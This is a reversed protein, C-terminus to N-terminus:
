APIEDSVFDEPGKSIFNELDSLQEKSLATISDKGYRQSVLDKANSLANRNSESEKAKKTDYGFHALTKKWVYMFDSNEGSNKNDNSPKTASSTNSYAKEPQSNSQTQAQPKDKGIVADLTDSETIGFFSMFLYRRAYTQMAGIDQMPNGTKGAISIPSKIEINQEPEDSNVIVMSATDLTFNFFTVLGYDSCLKELLPEFDDLQFYNFKTYGNYGTKPLKAKAMEGKVKAIKQYLNLKNNDM